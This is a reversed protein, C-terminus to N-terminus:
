AGDGGNKSSLAERVDRAAGQAASLAARRTRFGAREARWTGIELSFTWTGCRERQLRVGAGPTKAAQLARLAEALTRGRARLSIGGPGAYSVSIPANM